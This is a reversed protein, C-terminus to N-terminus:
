RRVFVSDPLGDAVPRFNAEIESAMQEVQWPAEATVKRIAQPNPYLSVEYGRSALVRGSLWSSRPSAIYLALAAINDPSMEPYDELNIGPAVGSILRTAASPSIANATV